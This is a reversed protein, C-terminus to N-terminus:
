CRMIPHGLYQYCVMSIHFLNGGKRIQPEQPPVPLSPGGLVKSCMRYGQSTWALGVPPHEPKCGCCADRLLRLLKWSMTSSTLFSHVRRHWRTEHHTSGKKPMNNLGLPFTWSSFEPAQYADVTPLDRSNSIYFSKIKIRTGQRRRLVILRFINCISERIEFEPGQVTQGTTCPRSFHPNISRRKLPKLLRFQWFRDRVSKYAGAM